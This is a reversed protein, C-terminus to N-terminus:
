VEKITTLTEGQKVEITFEAGKASSNYVGQEAMSVAYKGPNLIFKLTEKYAPKGFIEKGTAAEKIKILVDFPKGGSTAGIVAIGTKFDHVAETVAGNGVTLNKLIHTAEVGYIERGIIEVNYAGADVQFEEPEAYTRGGIVKKGEPTKVSINSDWLKGNNYVMLNLKAGDLNVTKYTTKDNFTQVNTVKGPTISSRIHQWVELEYTAQPLYLYTTDSYTRGMDAKNKTGAAYAQVDADIPKGDKLVYVDLNGKPKDVTQSAVESMADGLSSADAADYYNGDGAKAACELQKTEGAKLGFGVIHLKFDIGEKKAAM